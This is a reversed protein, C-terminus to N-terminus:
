ISYKKLAFLWLDGVNHRSQNPTQLSNAAWKWSFLEKCSLVQFLWDLWSCHRMLPWTGWMTQAYGPLHIELLPELGIWVEQSCDEYFKILSVESYLIPHENFLKHVLSESGLKLRCFQLDVCSSWHSHLTVKGTPIQSYCTMGILCLGSHM